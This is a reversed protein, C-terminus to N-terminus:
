RRNSKPEFICSRVIVDISIKRPEREHRFQLEDDGGDNLKCQQLRLGTLEGALLDEIPGDQRDEGILPDDQIIELSIDKSPEGIAPAVGLQHTSKDHGSNIFM